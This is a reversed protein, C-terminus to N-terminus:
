ASRGRKERQNLREVAYYVHLIGGIWGVVAGAVQGWPAIDLWRDVFWGLLWFLAVAGAFEFALSFAMGFGSAATRQGKPVPPGVKGSRGEPTKSGTGDQRDAV